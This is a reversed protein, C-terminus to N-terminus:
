CLNSLKSLQFPAILARGLRALFDCFRSLLSHFYYRIKKLRKRVITKQKRSLKLLDNCEKLSYM